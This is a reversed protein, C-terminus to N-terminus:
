NNFNYTKENPNFPSKLSALAFQKDAIIARLDKLDKKDKGNSLARMYDRLLRKLELKILYKDGTKTDQFFQIPMQEEFFTMTEM